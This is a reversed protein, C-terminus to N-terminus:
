VNGDSVVLVFEMHRWTDCRVITSVCTFLFHVCYFAGGFMSEMCQEVSRFRWRWTNVCPESLLLWGCCVFLLSLQKFAHKCVRRATSIDTTCAAQLHCQFADIFLLSYRSHILVSLLTERRGDVPWKLERRNSRYLEIRRGRACSLSLSLSHNIWQALSRRSFVTGQSARYVYLISGDSPPSWTTCTRQSGKEEAADIAVYISM